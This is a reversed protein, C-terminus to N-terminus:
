LCMKLSKAVSQPARASLILVCKGLVCLAEVEPWVEPGDHEDGSRLEKVGVEPEAGLWGDAVTEDDDVDEDDRTAAACANASLTFSKM